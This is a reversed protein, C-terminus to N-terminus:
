TEDDDDVEKGAGSKGVEALDDVPPSHELTSRPSEEFKLNKLLDRDSDSDIDIDPMSGFDVNIDAESKTRLLQDWTVVSAGSLPGSKQSRSIEGSGGEVRPMEGLEVIEEPDHAPKTPEPPKGKPDPKKPGGPPDSNM